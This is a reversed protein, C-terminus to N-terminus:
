NLVHIISRALTSPFQGLECCVMNIFKAPTVDYTLNLLKLNEIDKWTSLDGPRLGNRLPDQSISPPLCKSASRNSIDVLDEPNGVYLFSCLGLENFVFSDLRVKDSFKYVECLVMVPVKNDYASMAVLSTGIRSMVDGNCLVASAGLIVKTAEQMVFHVANTMIYTCSIGVSTLEAM